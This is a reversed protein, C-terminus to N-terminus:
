GLRRTVGGNVDGPPLSQEDRLRWIEHMQETCRAQLV